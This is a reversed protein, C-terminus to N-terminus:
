RDLSLQLSEGAATTAMVIGNAGDIQETKDGKVLVAKAGSAVLATRKAEGSESGFALEVGLAAPGCSMGYAGPVTKGQAAPFPAALCVADNAAPFVWGTGTATEITRALAVNKGTMGGDTGIARAVADPVGTVPARFADFNAQTLEPVAAVPAQNKDAELGVLAPAPDAANSVAAYSGIAAVGCLIAASFRWKTQIYM